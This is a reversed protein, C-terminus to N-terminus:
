RETEKKINYVKLRKRQNRCVCNAQTKTLGKKMLERQIAVASLEGDAGKGMRCNEVVFDRHEQTSKM